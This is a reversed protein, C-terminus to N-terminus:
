DWGPWFRICQAPMCHVDASEAALQLRAVAPVHLAVPKEVLVHKGAALAALALPVHTETPTTISVIDVASDQLLEVADGYQAVAARDFEARSDGGPGVGLPKECRALDRDCVAVLRNAYGDAAARAWADLHTVGMFGLGIVAVGPVKRRQDLIM